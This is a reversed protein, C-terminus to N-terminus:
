YGFSGHVVSNSGGRFRLGPEAVANPEPLNKSFSSVGPDKCDSFDASHVALATGCSTRKPIHNSSLSINCAAVEAHSAPHKDAELSISNASCGLMDDQSSIRGCYDINHLITDHESKNGLSMNYSDSLASSCSANVFTRM